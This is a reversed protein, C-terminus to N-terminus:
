ATILSIVFLASEHVSLFAWAPPLQVRAFPAAVLFAVIAGGIVIAAQRRQNQGARNTALFLQDEQPGLEM